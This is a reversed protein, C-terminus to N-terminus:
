AAPDAVETVEVRRVQWSKRDVKKKLERWGWVEIRGGAALWAKAPESCETRIKRERAAVNSGSTAQIALIGDGTLAVIDIFGFLDKRQKTQAIWKEAVAAQWGLRRCEALTRQTPTTRAM